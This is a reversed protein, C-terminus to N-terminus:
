TTSYTLRQLKPRYERGAMSYGSAWTVPGERVLDPMKGIWHTGGSGAQRAAISLHRQLGCMVLALLLGLLQALEGLFSAALQGVLGLQVGLDRPEALRGAPLALAGTLQVALQGGAVALAARQALLRRQLLALQADGARRSSSAPRVGGERSCALLPESSISTCTLSVPGAVYLHPPTAWPGTPRM